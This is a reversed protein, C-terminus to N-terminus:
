HMLSDVPSGVGRVTAVGHQDGEFGTPPFLLKSYM